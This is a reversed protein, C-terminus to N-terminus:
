ANRHHRGRTRPGTNRLLRLSPISGTTVEGVAMPWAEDPRSDHRTCHEAHLDYGLRLAETVVAAAFERRLVGTVTCTVALGVVLGCLYPVHPLVGVADVAALVGVVPWPLWPALRRIHTRM